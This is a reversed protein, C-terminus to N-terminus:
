KQCKKTGKKNSFNEINEHLMQLENQVDTYLAELRNVRQPLSLIVEQPTPEQSQTINSDAMM